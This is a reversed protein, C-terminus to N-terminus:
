ITVECEFKARSSVDANTIDIYNGAGVRAWSIDQTGDANYKKWLFSTVQNTVEVSGRYVRCTLRSSIDSNKFIIGASSEIETHLADRVLSITFIKQVSIGDYTANFTVTGSEVNNLATVTYRYTNSNLAGVVGTSTVINFNGESTVDGSGYILRVDTYCNSYGDTDPNISITERSLSISLTKVDAVINDIYTPLPVTEGQGGISINNGSIKLTGNSDIYMYRTATGDGNDKQVTFLNSNDVNPKGTITIGNEDISFSNGANYIGVNNGLIVKGVITEAIVGYGDVTQGTQPDIYSFHGLGAKVTQWGDNTYYIGKNLLKVQEDEYEDELDKKSRMLLGHEDYVMNQTNIDPIIKTGMIDINQLRKSNIVKSAQAGKEAQKQTYSYSTTMSRAQSVISAVDSMYNSGYVMDSFDVTLTLPSSYDIEWNTLRLKYVNDDAKVRIWNGTIFELKTDSNYEAYLLFDRLDASISHQLTASKVLEKKANEYFTKAQEILESDSLGESIYNDNQYTDERRYYSLENWLEEGLFVEMDLNANITDRIEELCEIFTNITDLETEREILESQILSMKLFYPHYMDLYHDHSIEGMGQEIMVDLASQCISSLMSLSDLSYFELRDQIYSLDNNKLLDVAGIDEAENQAMAKEMKQKVFTVEDDNFLLMLSTSAIDEEDTYSTITVTGSWLNQEYTTTSAEVKYLSTHVFVKAYDRVATASTTSSLRTPDTVGIPTQLGVIVKAMEQAATTDIVSSSYPMMSTEVFGYFDITKYYDETLESYGNAFRDLIKYDKVAYTDYKIALLEYASYEDEPYEIVESESYSRYLADYEEIKSVLEPSMDAKMEDTIFWIYNSGSPAIARLASTMDEDGGQLRFCNKVEDTNTSYSISEAINEVDIYIHTDVGYGNIIGETEGCETCIGDPYNGRKGCSPCYDLLDYVAITRHYTGDDEGLGFVFLCEVEEAIDMFADYISTGDFSFQRQIDKLSDDVHIIDYYPAKDHLIRDLLSGSPDEENYFKTVVYDERDIDAETNIEIEYLMLQGLEAENAHLGNVHKICDNAEDIQVTIEYWLNCAPLYALRFNKLEDWVPQRVGDLEKYYDFSIESVDSLPHTHHFSFAEEIVGYKQGSKSEIIIPMEIRNDLNLEPIAEYISDSM